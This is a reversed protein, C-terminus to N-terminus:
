LLLHAAQQKQENDLFTAQTAKSKHPWREPSEPVRIASKVQNPVARPKQMTLISVEGIQAFGDEDIRDVCGSRNKTLVWALVFGCTLCRHAITMTEAVKSIGLLYLGLTRPILFPM